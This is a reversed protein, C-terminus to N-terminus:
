AKLRGSRNGEIALDVSRQLDQYRVSQWRSAISKLGISKQDGLLEIESTPAVNFTWNGVDLVAIRREEESTPEASPGVFACFVYCDAWRGRETSYGGTEADWREHRAIDFRPPSPKVGPPQPWAQIESTTKVEIAASRYRLDVSDWDIRPQATLGLASAVLFEGFAARITNVLVDSYAWRWFEGITENPIGLIALDPRLKSTLTRSGTISMVLSYLTATSKSTSERPPVIGFPATLM